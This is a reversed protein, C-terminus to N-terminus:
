GSESVVVRFDQPMLETVLRQGILLFRKADLYRKLKAAHKESIKVEYKQLWENAVKQFTNRVVQEEAKKALKAEKKVQGPDNGKALLERAKQRAESLSVEPYQGSSLLKQKDDFRYAM